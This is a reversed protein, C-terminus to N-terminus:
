ATWIPCADASSHACDGKHTPRDQAACNPTGSSTRPCPTSFPEPSIGDSRPWCSPTTPTSCGPRTTGHRPSTSPSGTPISPRASPTEYGTTTMRRRPPSTSRLTREVQPLAGPSPTHVAFLDAALADDAPSHPSGSEARLIDTPVGMPPLTAAIHRDDAGLDGWYVPHMEIGSAAQLAAVAATFDSPDRNAVGHIVFVPDLVSEKEKM